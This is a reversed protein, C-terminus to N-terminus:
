IDRSMWRARRLVSHAVSTTDEKEPFIVQIEFFELVRLSLVTPSGEIV